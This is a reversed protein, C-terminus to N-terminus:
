KSYFAMKCMSIGFEPLGLVWQSDFLHVKGHLRDLPLVAILVAASVSATSSSTSLTASCWALLGHTSVIISTAHVITLTVILSEVLIISTSSILITLLVGSTAELLILSSHSWILRTSHLLITIHHSTVGHLLILHVSNVLLFVVLRLQASM